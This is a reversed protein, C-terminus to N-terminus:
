KMLLKVKVLKKLYSLFKSPLIARVQVSPKTYGLQIQQITQQLDPEQMIKVIQKSTRLPQLYGYYFSVSSLLICTLVGWIPLQSFIYVKDSQTEFQWYALVM